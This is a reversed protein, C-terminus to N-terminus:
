GGAKVVEWGGGRGEWRDALIEVVSACEVGRAKKMGVGVGMGGDRYVVRADMKGRPLDSVLLGVDLYIALVGMLSPVVANSTFISPTPPPQQEPATRTPPLPAPNSLITHLAHTRTLQALSALFPSTLAHARISDKKLLPTLVQTLSSLLIFKLKGAHPNEKPEHRSPPQKPPETQPVPLPAPQAAGFLMEEDEEDEDEDESDAVVTRKPTLPEPTPQKPTGMRERKEVREKGGELGDRIEGVAERVGVFDFVRMIGVRGLMEAALNEVEKEGLVTSGNKVRGLISTYLGVVDFEGTSDVVAAGSRPYRLLSDILLSKCVEDGNGWVGVIGGGERLGGELVGMGIGRGDDSNKGDVIGGIEGETIESSALLVEAAM